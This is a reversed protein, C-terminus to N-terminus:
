VAFYTVPFSNGPNGPGDATVARVRITRDGTCATAGCVPDNVRGMQETIWDADIGIPLWEGGDLQAEYSLAGPVTTFFVYTWVQGGSYYYESRYAQPGPAALVVENSTAGPSTGVANVARVQYVHTGGPQGVLVIQNGDLVAAAWDDDDVKVQYGTIESGGDSSPAQFTMSVTSGDATAVVNSPATPVTVPTFVQSNSAEGTGRANLARVRVDYEHGYTLDSLGFAFGSSAPTYTFDAWTEGGDTSLEYDTVPSGGDFAPAAFTFSADPGDLIPAALSPAGPMTTVLAQASTSPGSGWQNSARVRVEYTTGNNLGVKTVTYPANSGIEALSWNEGGDYSIEYSEIESGGDREPEDFTATLTGDGGVVTLDTPASPRGFVTASLSNSPGGAGVKNLARVRVAVTSEPTLGTRFGYIMGEGCTGRCSPRGSRGLLPQVTEWGTGTNVQYGTVPSGGDSVPAAFGYIVGQDVGFVGDLVPAGPVRAGPVSPVSPAPRAGTMVVVVRRNLQRQRPTGGVVVPRSSGYGVASTRLGPNETALRRCVNTARSRALSRAKSTRGYYDAYGECRVSSANALSDALRRLQLKASTTLNSSGRSSLGRGGLTLAQGKGVQHGFAFRVPVALAGARTRYVARTERVKGRYARPKRPVAVEARRQAPTRPDVFWSSKSAVVAPAASTTNPAASAAPAIPGALVTAMGSVAVALAAVKRSSVSSSM